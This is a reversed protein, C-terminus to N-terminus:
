FKHTLSVKFSRGPESYFPLPQNTSFTSNPNINRVQLANYYTKNFINYVGAQLRFGKIQEPEWWAEINAISYAPADFTNPNHDDRMKGVFIGTLEAGWNERAYGIGLISKFPAVTRLVANSTLDKGYAYALSGHVFFGNDFDKRARVEVGSIGVRDLNEWTNILYEPFYGPPYKDTFEEVPSIFNRYRNHFVSLRGSLNGSEYNAGAEFGQGTEAKLDPNGLVSYGGSINSFNSYLETLTPARYAMSWQAFLGLQETAQYEVLLKPSLRMGDNPGALGFRSYGTNDSFADTLKPTYRHWDFRLGPTVTFASNAFAITDDIYIGVKTGNANPVDAQSASPSTPSAGGISTIFQDYRFMNLNGGVRVTHSLTGTEFSSVAEGTLGVASERTMNERDYAWSVADSAGSAFRTANSGADKTLRQWYLTLKAADVMGGVEPAVYDYDLSLRERMTDDFGWYFGPRYTTGNQLTKLDISSDLAFREATVGIRHGGEIDHRLKFLLNSQDFDNPNPKTRFSGIIDDEGKNRTEHGKKYAGQFLVATADHRYAAAVSGNFSNNKSDYGLRTLAGWNRGADILDDPELTRMLLGGALGGSGIRSSDAGRLVDLASLSAFDFSNSSDSIGTTPSQADTRTLTELYPIPIGDIITAIRPGGLGRIFTGGAVGPRTEVYDVGPETTNGLDSISGIEQKAIEEATTQTALPTDSAVGAATQKGKVEITELVISNGGTGGDQAIAPSAAHLLAIATCALLASRSHWIDM